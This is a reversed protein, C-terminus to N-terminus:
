YHLEKPDDTLKLATVTCFRVITFLLCVFFTIPSLREWWIKWAEKITLNTM